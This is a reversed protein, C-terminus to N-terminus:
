GGILWRANDLSDNVQGIRKHIDNYQDTVQYNNDIFQTTLTEAILQAIQCLSEAREKTDSKDIGEATKKFKSMLTEIKSKEDNMFNPIEKVAYKANKLEEKKAKMTNKYAKARQMNAKAEYVDSSSVDCVFDRVSPLTITDIIHDFETLKYEPSVACRELEPINVQLSLNLDTHNSDISKLIRNIENLTSQKFQIFRDIKVSVENCAVLLNDYADRYANEGDNIYEQAKYNYEAIQQRKEYNDKARDFLGM